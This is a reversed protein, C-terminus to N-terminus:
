DPLLGNNAEKFECLNPLILQWHNFPVCPHSPAPILALWLTLSDLAVSGKAAGCPGKRLISLIGWYLTHCYLFCDTFTWGRGMAEISFKQGQNSNPIFYPHVRQSARLAGSRQITFLLIDYCLRGGKSFMQTYVIDKHMYCLEYSM